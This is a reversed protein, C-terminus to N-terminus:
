IFDKYDIGGNSKPDYYFISQQLAQSEKISINERIKTKFVKTGFTKAMNEINNKMDKSLIARNSFRTLLIGIIELNPNTYEKIDEIREIMKKHMSSLQYINNRTEKVSEFIIKVKDDFSMEM